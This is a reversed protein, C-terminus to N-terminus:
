KSPHVINAINEININIITTIAMNAARIILTTARGTKITKATIPKTKEINPSTKLNIKPPGNSKIIIIAHM